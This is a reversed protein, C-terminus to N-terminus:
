TPSPDTNGHFPDPVTDFYFQDAVSYISSCENCLFVQLRGTERLRTGHAGGGQVQPVRRPARLGQGHAGGGQVQPVQGPHLLRPGHAGGRRM